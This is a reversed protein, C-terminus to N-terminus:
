GTARPSRRNSVLDALAGGFPIEIPDLESARVYPM